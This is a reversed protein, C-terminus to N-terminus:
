VAKRKVQYHKAHYKTVISESDKFIYQKSLTSFRRVQLM